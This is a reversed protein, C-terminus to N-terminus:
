CSGRIKKLTKKSGHKKSIGIEKRIKYMDLLRNRNEEYYVRTCSKCSSSIVKLRSSKCFSTILPNEEGCKFM